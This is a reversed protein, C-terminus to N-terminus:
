MKNAWRSNVYEFPMGFGDIAHYMDIRVWVDLKRVRHEDYDQELEDYLKNAKLEAKEESETVYYGRFTKVVFIDM